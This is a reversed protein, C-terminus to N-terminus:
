NPGPMSNPFTGERQKDKRESAALSNNSPTFHNIHLVDGPQPTQGSLLGIITQLQADVALNREEDEKSKQQWQVIQQSFSAALEEHKKALREQEDRLATLTRLLHDIM